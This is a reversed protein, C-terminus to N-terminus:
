PFAWNRWASAEVRAKRGTACLLVDFPIAEEGEKGEKGGVILRQEGDVVECRL